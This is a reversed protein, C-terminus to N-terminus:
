HPQVKLDMLTTGSFIYDLPTVKVGNVYPKVLMFKVSYDVFAAPANDLLIQAAEMYQASRKQADLERDAAFVLQDYRDDKWGTRYPLTNHSEFVVSYWDQPDPYDQCWAYLFLQPTTAQKTGNDRYTVADQPDLRLEIALNEKLQTALWDARAQNRGSAVYGYRIEPLGKGGPFGADALEKRAAVPDFVLTKLAPYSGPLGQPVFQDAPLSIGIGFNKVYQERDFAQAVARRVKVNDFPPRTTNFGYYSTCGGPRRQLQASLNPDAQVRALENPGLVATELENNLYALLAAQSNNLVVEIRELPPKGRWYNENPAFVLRSQHQWETLIYPGNGIYTAPETWKDGAKEVIDQRVPLGNWTALIAPFYPARVALDFELTLDDLARVGVADRLRMLDAKSLKKSEATAYAEAGAFVYGTFANSSAVDPDLQRKWGYEFNKATLPRGDSYKLNSKLKVTYTLGDSSAVPLDAAMDPVLGGSANFALLNGFVKMVVDIEDLSEARQPDIVDPEASIHLRLVQRVPKPTPAPTPVPAQPTGGNAAPTGPPLPTQEPAANQECASVFILGILALFLLRRM